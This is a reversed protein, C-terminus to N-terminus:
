QKPETSKLECKTTMKQYDDMMQQMQQKSELWIAALKKNQVISVQQKPIAKVM